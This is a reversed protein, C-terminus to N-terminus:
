LRLAQANQRQLTLHCNRLKLSYEQELWKQVLLVVQLAQQEAM